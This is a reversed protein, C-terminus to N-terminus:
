TGGPWALFRLLLCRLFLMASATCCVHTHITVLVHAIQLSRAQKARCEQHCVDTVYTLTALGKIRNAVRGWWAMGSVEERCGEPGQSPFECTLGLLIFAFANASTPRIEKVKSGRLSVNGTGSVVISCNRRPGAKRAAQPSSPPGLSSLRGRLQQCLSCPSSGAGERKQGPM